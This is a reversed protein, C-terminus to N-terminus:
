QVIGNMEKSQVLATQLPSRTLLTQLDGLSKLNLEETLAAEELLEQQTLRRVESVRKQAAIGKIMKMKMEREEERRARAKSKADTTGRM